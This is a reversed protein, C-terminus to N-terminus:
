GPTPVLLTQFYLVRLLVQDSIGGMGCTWEEPPATSM